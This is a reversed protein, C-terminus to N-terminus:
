IEATLDGSIINLESLLGLVGSQYDATQVAAAGRCPEGCHLAIYYFAIIKKM